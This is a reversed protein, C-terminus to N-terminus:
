VLFMKKKDILKVVAKKKETQLCLKKKCLTSFRIQVFKPNIQHM